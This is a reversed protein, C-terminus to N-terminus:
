RTIESHKLIEGSIEVPTKLGSPTKVCLIEKGSLEKVEFEDLRGSNEMDAISKGILRKVSRVTFASRGDEKVERNGVRPIDGSQYTVTSKVLANGDDDSCIKVASGQRDVYGVLSNTNM